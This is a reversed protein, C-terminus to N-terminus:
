RWRFCLHRLVFKILRQTKKGTDKPLGRSISRTQEESMAWDWNMLWRELQKIISKNILWPSWTHKNTQKNTSSTYRAKDTYPNKILEWCEWMWTKKDYKQKASSIQMTVLTTNRNFFVVKSQFGYLMCNFFVIKLCKYLKRPTWAHKKM